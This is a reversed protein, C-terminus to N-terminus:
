TRWEAYRDCTQDGGLSGYLLLYWESIILLPVQGSPCTGKLLFRGECGAYAEKDEIERVGLRKGNKM